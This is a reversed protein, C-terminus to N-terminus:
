AEKLDKPFINELLQQNLHNVTPQNLLNEMVLSAYLFM